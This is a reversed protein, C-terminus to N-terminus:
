LKSFLSINRSPLFPFIFFVIFLILISPMVDLYMIDFLNSDSPLKTSKISILSRCSFNEILCESLLLSEIVSCNKM